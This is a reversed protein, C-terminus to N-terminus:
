APTRLPAEGMLALLDNQVTLCYADLPLDNPLVDFPDEIQDGLADLGFFTYALVGVM